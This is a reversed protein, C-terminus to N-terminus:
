RASVQKDTALSSEMITMAMQSLTKVFVQQKDNPQAIFILYYQKKSISNKM